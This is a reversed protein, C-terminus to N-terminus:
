NITVRNRGSSKAKYLAADVRRILSDATDGPQYETVGFSATVQGIEQATARITLSKAGLKIRVREAIGAAERSGCTPLLLAFEEGGFRAVTDGERVSTSLLQSFFKLVEDGVQHGFQDNINKFGDLDGLVIALASKSKAASAIAEAINQDFCRRNGVNTLPDQLGVEHAKDLRQRLQEIQLRSKDLEKSLNTSDLRMRHNEAVLLSVIVRVQEPTPLQSLRAKAAALSAAYSEDTGIRARILSLVNNLEQNLKVASANLLKRQQNDQRVEAKVIGPIRPLLAAGAGALACVSLGVGGWVLLTRWSPAAAQASNGGAAMSLAVVAIIIGFQFAALVAWAPFPRRLPDLLSKSEM